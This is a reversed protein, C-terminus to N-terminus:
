GVSGNGVRKGVACGVVDAGVFSGVGKVVFSGEAAGTSCGVIAGTAVFSGENAGTSGVLAGTVVLSGM